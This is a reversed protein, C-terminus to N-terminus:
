NYSRIMTLVNATDIQDILTRDANNATSRLEEFKRRGESGYNYICSLALEQTARASASEFANLLFQLHKGSNIALVANLIDRRVEEPQYDYTKIMEDEAAKNHTNAIVNMAAARCPLKPSMFLRKVGEKEDQGGWYSIERILFAAMEENKLREAMILFNPMRREKKKMWGFIYHLLMPRLSAQPLELDDQLYRYPENESCLIYCLRALMRIDKDSHNIYNALRGESIVLQFLLLVQLTHFVDRNKLLNLEMYERVGVLDALPQFNPLYVIEYLEMRVAALIKVFFDPRVKRLTQEDEGNLIEIMETSSLTDNGLITRFADTYKKEMDHLVKEEKKRKIIDTFFLVLLILMVALAIFVIFYCTKVQWSYDAFYNQFIYYYYVLVEYGSIETAPVVDGSSAVTPIIQIIGYIIAVVILLRILAKLYNGLKYMTKTISDKHGVAHQATLNNHM